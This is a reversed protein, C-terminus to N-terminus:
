HTCNISSKKNDFKSKFVCVCVHVFDWNNASVFCLFVLRQPFVALGM